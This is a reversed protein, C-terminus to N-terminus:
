NTYARMIYLLHSVHAAPLAARNHEDAKACSKLIKNFISKTAVNRNHLKIKYQIM